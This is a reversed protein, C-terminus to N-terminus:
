NSFFTPYEKLEEPNIPKTFCVELTYNNLVPRFLRIANKM